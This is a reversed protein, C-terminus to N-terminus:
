PFPVTRAMEASVGTSVYRRGAAVEEDVAQYRVAASAVDNGSWAGSAPRGAWPGDYTRIAWSSVAAAVLPPNM